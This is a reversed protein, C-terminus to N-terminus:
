SQIKITSVEYKVFDCVFITLLKSFNIFSGFIKSNIFLVDQIWCVPHLLLLQVEVPLVEAHEVEATDAQLLYVEVPEEALLLEVGM